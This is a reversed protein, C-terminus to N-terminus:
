SKGPLQWSDIVVRVDLGQKDMFIKEPLERAQHEGYRRYRVRWGDQRLEALRGQEDLEHGEPVGEQPLGLAWRRLGTVPVQWGLYYQMLEEATSAAYRAGESDKLVVGDRDGDLYVSGQGIPGIFKLSFGDSSQQWYLSAHWAKDEAYVSIRGNITFADIAQLREQHLRWEGAPTVDPKVLGTGQCGSM